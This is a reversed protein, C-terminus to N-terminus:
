TRTLAPLRIRVTTGKGLDSEAAIEGGMREVMHRVISLGLGTGGESRSRAPDVRYFREFVRGIAERPIGSGTDSVSIEVWPTAEGPRPRAPAVVVKISGGAPTHRISNDYLNSYVQRLGAPDALAMIGTGEASFRLGKRDAQDRCSLWVEEATAHADVPQLEPRWGGSELRSLDLLDDVIHHLREANKQVVDLFQRQMEPPLEDSLLTEVYGRISTLPTKLEHSVNAVFDRRVGELRRVETLDILAIVAGLEAGDRLPRAAILLRHDEVALEVTEVTGTRGARDLLARLETHRVLSALTRGAVNEPLGLLECAAPNARVVRGDATVQMIGESVANVLLALEERDRGLTSTREAFEGVLFEIAAALANLETVRSRSLPAAAGTRAQAATESRLREVRASLLNGLTLGIVTGGLLVLIAVGLYTGAVDGAVRAVEDAPVLGSLQARLTGLAARQAVLLGLLLPTVVAVTTLLRLRWRFQNM